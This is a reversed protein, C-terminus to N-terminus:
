GNLHFDAAPKVGMFDTYEGIVDLAPGYGKIEGKNLWLVKDCHEAIFNNSHSVILITCGQERFHLIRNICKKQFAIDGVALVEDILLIEPQIHTAVSFGLRMNMGSSYSRLPSDIFAGLEAFDVISDFKERVESRLLGSIVGNIYVNERGTLEPHFGAGLSLLSGIRGQTSITGSDPTGLKGVLRLLTSKGAGNHGVVGLMQGRPISFSVNKLAWFNDVARMRGFGRTIAEQFTQPRDQAFKRFKKSLNNVIIPDDM